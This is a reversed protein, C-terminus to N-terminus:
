GKFLHRALDVEAFAGGIQQTTRNTNVLRRWIWSLIVVVVMTFILVIGAISIGTPRSQAIMCTGDSTCLDKPNKSKGICESSVLCTEKQMRLGYVIMVIGVISFVVAIVLSFWFGVEAYFSGITAQIDGLQSM